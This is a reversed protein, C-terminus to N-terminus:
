KTSGFKMRELDHIIEKFTPRLAPVREWCKKMLRAFQEPTDKPIEPRLDREVVGISVQTGSIDRYPPERSAIEWLIIGFSFVDAKESYGKSQIVEPAMWQFTGIKGTMEEAKLRTWGFDGIKARLYEDMMVNLSKLDRHIIPTKFSHLYNMGRAIELAIRKRDDWNLHVKPTQLVLWLSKNSCYELVIALHPYKTCAGLFLVINNHRLTEM